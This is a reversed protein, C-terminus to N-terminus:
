LLSDRLETAWTHEFLMIAASCNPAIDESLMRIDDESLLGTVDAIIPVLERTTAEGLEDLELVSLEGDGDRIAMVIDIVKIIGKDVASRIAPIIEGKFENGDFGIAIYELPADPM